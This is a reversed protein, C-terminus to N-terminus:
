VTRHGSDPDPYNLNDRYCPNDRYLRWAFDLFERRDAACDVRIIEAM